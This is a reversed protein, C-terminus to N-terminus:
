RHLVEVAALSEDFETAHAERTAVGLDDEVRGDHKEVVQEAELLVRLFLQLSLELLCEFRDVFRERVLRLRVFVRM